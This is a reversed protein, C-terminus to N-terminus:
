KHRRESRNQNPSLSVSTALRLVQDTTRQCPQFEMANNATEGASRLKSRAAADWARPRTRDDISEDDESALALIWYRGPQVNTVEFTGDAQASAEFFCLVQDANEKEVPILHVRIRKPLNAGQREPVIRGQLTAAGEALTITLDTVHQDPRIALGERAADIPPKGKASAPITMSRVFWQEGPLRAEIRYLGADIDGIKFDGKEGPAGVSEELSALVPKKNEKDDRHAFVLSEEVSLKRKSECRSKREGDTLPQLEVSGAISSTTILAIALGTVDSGKVKVVTAPSCVGSDGQNAGRWGRLFYDGDPVGHFAFSRSGPRAYSYTEAALSGTQSDFLDIRVIAYGNKPEPASVSGSVTHGREARYRIDIGSLEQGAQVTVEAAGYRNASPHYTPADDRYAPVAGDSGAGAMVIYVGPPLGYLRYVGRDDTTRQNPFRTRRAPHGELGRLRVATVAVAIVPEAGSNTVVGTIVGGKVMRVTVADGPRYYTSPQDSGDLYYGGAYVDIKYSGLKLDDFSFRGYEDSRTNRYRDLPQNVATTSLMAYPIPQGSEDLVRGTLSSKREDSSLKKTQNSPHPMADPPFGGAAALLMASIICRFHVRKM